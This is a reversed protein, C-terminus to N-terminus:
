EDNKPMGLKGIFCISGTEKETIVCSFPKNLRVRRNSSGIYTLEFDISIFTARGEENSSCSQLLFAVCSNIIFYNYKLKM